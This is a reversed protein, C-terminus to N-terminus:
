IIKMIANINNFFHLLWCYKFNTSLSNYNFNFFDIFQQKICKQPSTTPPRTPRFQDAHLVTNHGRGTACWQTLPAWACHGWHASQGVPQHHGRQPKVRPRPHSGQRRSGRMSPRSGNGTARRPEAAGEFYRLSCSPRWLPRSRSPLMPLSPRVVPAPSPLSPPAPHPLPRVLVHLRPGFPPDHFCGISLEVKLPPLYYM